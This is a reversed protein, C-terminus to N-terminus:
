EHAAILAAITLGEDRLTQDLVEDHPQFRDVRGSAADFRVVGSTLPAVIDGDTAWAAPCASTAALAGDGRDIRWYPRYLERDIYLTIYHERGTMGATKGSVIWVPRSMAPLNVAALSPRASGPADGLPVGEGSLPALIEAEGTLTWRYGEPGIDGCRYDDVTLASAGPAIATDDALAGLRRVRRTAPAYWWRQPIGGDLPYQTLLGTGGVEPLDFASVAQAARLQRPNAIPGSQRGVFALSAVRAQWCQPTRGRETSCLSARGRRGGGAAFAAAVNWMIECGARRGRQDEITPFPLGFREGTPASGDRALLRCGGHADVGFRGANAASAAAFAPSQLAAITAADVELPRLALARDIVLPLADSPLQRSLDGLAEVEADSLPTQGAAGAAAPAGATPVATPRPEGPRAVEQDPRTAGTGIPATAPGRPPEVPRPAPAPAIRALRDAAPRLALWGAAIALLVGAAIAWRSWPRPATAPPTAARRASRGPRGQEAALAAFRAAVTQPDLGADRLEQEAGARDQPAVADFADALAALTDDDRRPPTTTM